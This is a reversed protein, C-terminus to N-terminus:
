QRTLAVPESYPTEGSANAGKVRYFYPKGRPATEDVYLLSPDAVKSDELAKVDFVVSDSLGVALVTWPGDAREAREVTYTAAGTSGRWTLGDGLALLVPAPSPPPVPSPVAGRIAFAEVRLLDLLRREDYAQGAAFGPWHYSNIPTGGENHYFFGGDRRHGRVGWLLGGAIQEERITKMLAEVTAVSGLGFEDIILPKMGRSEARKERALAAL